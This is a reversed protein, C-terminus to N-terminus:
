NLLYAKGVPSQCEAIALANYWGDANVYTDMFQSETVYIRVHFTEM